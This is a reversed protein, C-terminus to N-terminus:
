SLSFAFETVVNSPFSYKNHLVFDLDIFIISLKSNPISVM